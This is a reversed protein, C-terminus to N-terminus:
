TSKLYLYYPWGMLLNPEIPEFRSIKLERDSVIYGASMVLKDIYPSLRTMLQQDRILDKTGLDVHILVVEGQHQKTFGALTEEIPGLILQDQLPECGPHTNVAYDFTFIRKNPLRKRLHDFTRGSGLGLEVVLGQKSRVAETAMDLTAKQASFRCILDDLRSM